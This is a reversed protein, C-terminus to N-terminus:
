GNFFLGSLSLYNLGIRLPLSANPFFCYGRQSPQLGSTVM